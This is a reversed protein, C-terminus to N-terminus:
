ELDYCGPLSSAHCESISVSCPLFNFGPTEVGADLSMIMKSYQGRSLSFDGLPSMRNDDQSHRPIIKILAVVEKRSWFDERATGRARDEDGKPM